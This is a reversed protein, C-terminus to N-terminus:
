NVLEGAHQDSEDAFAIAAKTEARQTGGILAFSLTTQEEANSRWIKRVLILRREFVIISRRRDREEPRGETASRPGRSPSPLGAAAGSSALPGWARNARPWASLGGAAGFVRGFVLVVLSSRTGRRVDAGARVCLPPSLSLSLSLAAFCSM